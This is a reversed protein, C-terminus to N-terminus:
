KCDHKNSFHLFRKIQEFQSESMIEAVHPIGTSSSWYDRTSSLKVISMYWICTVFNSIDETDPKEPRTQTAYSSQQAIEAFLEKPFLLFFYSLKTGLEDFLEDIEKEYNAKFLFDDQKYKLNEKKWSLQM